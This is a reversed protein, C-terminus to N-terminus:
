VLMSSYIGGMLFMVGWREEIFERDYVATARLKLYKLALNLHDNFTRGSPLMDKGDGPAYGENALAEIYAHHTVGLYYHTHADWGYVDLDKELYNLDFIYRKSAHSSTHGVSTHWSGRQEIERTVWGIVKWTYTEGIDLVEHLHYRMKLGARHLLLWDCRRTTQGNRDYILFRFADHSLDLATLDITDVDPKWDPDTIWVHTAQSFKNWATKLSASRAPGFGDFNYMEIHFERKGKLIEEIAKVTGDSTRKDVMFVFYKILPVWLPLNSRINVEEDRVIMTMVVSNQQQAHQSLAHINDLQRLLLLNLLVGLMEVIM